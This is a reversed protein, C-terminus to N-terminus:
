VVAVAAAKRKRRWGFLGLVGFGSAFLPLTAPLPTASADTTIPTMTGTFSGDGVFTLQAVFASTSTPDLLLSPDIGLVEFRDVGGPGFNFLTNANLNTDFMYSTGNWLFLEYPKSNGIDPLTVSAFNPDGLGTQFIYGIAIAPDINYTQGGSVNMNFNYVVNGSSTVQSTPLYVPGSFTTTSASPHLDFLTHASAAESVINGSGNVYYLATNVGFTYAQGAQLGWSAPITFSTGSFGSAVNSLTGQANNVTLFTGAVMGTPVTYSAQNWSITPTTSNPNSTTINTVATNTSTNVQLISLPNSSFETGPQFLSSSIGNTPVVFPSNTYNPNTVTLQWSGVLNSKFLPSASWTDQHVPSNSYTLTRTVTNGTAANVQTATVTTNAAFAQEQSFTTNTGTSSPVFTGSIYDRLSPTSGNLADGTTYLLSSTLAVACTTACGGFMITDANVYTPMALL